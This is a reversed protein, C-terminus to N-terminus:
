SKVMIINEMNQHILRFGQKAIHNIYKETQVSNHEICICKCGIANLDMQQLISWDYGEADINIFDYQLPYRKYFTDWRMTKVKDKYFVQTDGWRKTENIDLTAVAQDNDFFEAEGDTDSIAIQLAQVFGNDKYLAHLKPFVMPSPDLCVGHWGNLALARTNSLNEGDYAGIDIFNGKFHKFYGLIYQQEHNQSYEKM